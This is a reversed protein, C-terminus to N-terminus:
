SHFLRRIINRPKRLYLFPAVCSFIISALDTEWSRRFHCPSFWSLPHHSILYSFFFIIYLHTVELCQQSIELRIWSSHLLSFPNNCATNLFYFFHPYSQKLHKKSVVSLVTPTVSVPFFLCLCLAIVHPSNWRISFWVKDSLCLCVGNISGRPFTYAWLHLIHKTPFGLPLKFHIFKPFYSAVNCAACRSTWYSLYSRLLMQFIFGLAKPSDTGRCEGTVAALKVASVPM